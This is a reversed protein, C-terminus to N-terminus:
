GSGEIQVTAYPALSLTGRVIQAAPRTGNAAVPWSATDLSRFSLAGSSEVGNLRVALTRSTLNALWVSKGGAAAAAAVGLVSDPRSFIL